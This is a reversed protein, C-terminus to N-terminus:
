TILSSRAILDDGFDTRTLKSYVTRPKSGSVAGTDLSQWWLRRQYRPAGNRGYSTPQHPRVTWMSGEDGTVSRCLTPGAGQGGWCRDRDSAQNHLVLEGFLAQRPTWTTVM